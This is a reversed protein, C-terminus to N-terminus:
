KLGNKITEKGEDFALGIGWFREFDSKKDPKFPTPHCKKRFLVNFINGIIFFCSESPYINFAQTQNFKLKVL